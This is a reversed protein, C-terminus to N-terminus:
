QGAASKISETMSNFAGDNLLHDMCLLPGQPDDQFSERVKVITAEQISFFADVVMPDFHRDREELVIQNAAEISLAAKYPRKSTLADFVDALAVIRGV